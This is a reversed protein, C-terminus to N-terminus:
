CAGEEEQGRETEKRGSSRGGCCFYRGGTGEKVGQGRRGEPEVNGEGEERRFVPEEELGEGM